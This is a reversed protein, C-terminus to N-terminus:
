ATCQSAVLEAQAQDLAAAFRAFMEAIESESIVLPPAFAVADGMARLIVGNDQAKAVVRAGIGLKPDFPAKTRKDAVLELAGILGIGRAEGVLPHGTFGKLAAQFAPAVRRVHGVIDRERYIALTELAVAAPVPHGGYTFGHGFVGIRGAEAAVAEYLRGSVVLASIPQYGSSLGKAVTIMDPRIGFTDCGFMNGTRGFGTIVEDVVLLVDHRRLVAQLKDFYTAPPVIVGGAGMVPEAFFAAVTDAGEALILSEVEEALRTAYAEESEGPRANRWHHPCAARLVDGDPLDFSRHNTPLGTLAATALTVGHYARDRAILKKKAPRGLANNAYRILKIATDNAESGSNALFVRADDIPVMSALREALLVAPEHTKSGFLHYFPLRRMQAAAVDALRTEGWGLTTCWLGALGEIYDRGREDFVRVGEGRVIVLPGTEAHRVLNTYPHLLHAVDSAAVPSIDAPM